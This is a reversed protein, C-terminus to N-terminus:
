RYFEVVIAGDAGRRGPRRWRAAAAGRAVREERQRFLSGALQGAFVPNAWPVLVRRMLVEEHERLALEEADTAIEPFLHAIGVPDLLRVACARSCLEPLVFPETGGARLCLVCTGAPVHYGFRRGPVNDERFM